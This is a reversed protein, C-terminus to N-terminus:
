WEPTGAGHGATGHTNHRVSSLGFDGIKVQWRQDVLINPSKLDQARVTTFLPAFVACPRRNNSAADASHVMGHM